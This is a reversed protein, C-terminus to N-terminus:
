FFSSFFARMGGFFGLRFLCVFVCLFYVWCFRFLFGFVDCFDFLCCCCFLLLVFM